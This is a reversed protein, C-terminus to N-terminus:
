KHVGYGEASHLFALTTKRKTFVERSPSGKQESAQSDASEKGRTGCAGAADMWFHARRQSLPPAFQQKRAPALSHLQSSMTHRM